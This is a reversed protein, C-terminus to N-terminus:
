QQTTERIFLQLPETAEGGSRALRQNMREM